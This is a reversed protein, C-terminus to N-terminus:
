KPFLAVGAIIKDKARGDIKLRLKALMQERTVSTYLPFLDSNSEEQKEVNFYVYTIPMPLFEPLDASADMLMGNKFSCGQLVINRLRVFLENGKPQEFVTVLSLEDIPKSTERAIKQKLANLLIEPHYLENLDL